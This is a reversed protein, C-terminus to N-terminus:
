GSSSKWPVTRPAFLMSSGDRRATSWSPVGAGPADFVVVVVPSTEVLAELGAQARREDRHTRANAIATAAQSTFLVLVEEDEATFERGGGKEALFFNGVHGDGHIMPTGQFTKSRMLNPSFGLARVYAPLDALRLPAALERCHKFLRPGDAWAAMQCKEEPTFGSIVFDRVLGAEDATVIVGYRAGTLACASDVAEHLVTDLDLSASIRLVAASLRSIREQLAENHRLLDSANKEM